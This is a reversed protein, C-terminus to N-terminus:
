KQLDLIDSNKMWTAYKTPWGLWKVLSKTRTKRLIKEIIYVQDREVTVRQLENEYFISNVQENQLDKIKYAPIGQKITRESILFTERSWREDFERDFTSKNL